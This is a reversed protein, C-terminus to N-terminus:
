NSSSTSVTPAEHGAMCRSSPRRPMAQGRMSTTFGRPTGTTHSSDRVRGRFGPHSSSSRRTRCSVSVAARKGRSSQPSPAGSTATWWATRCSTSRPRRNPSGAGSRNLSSRQFATRLEAGQSVHCGDAGALAPPVSRSKAPVCNGLFQTGYLILTKFM